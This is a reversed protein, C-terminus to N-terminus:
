YLLHIYLLIHLRLIVPYKKWFAIFSFNFPGYASVFFAENNGIFSLSMQKRTEVRIDLLHVYRRGPYLIRGSPNVPLFSPFPDGSNIILAITAPGLYFSCKKLVLTLV